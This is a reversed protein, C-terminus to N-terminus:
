ENEDGFFDRKLREDYTCLECIYDFIAEDIIPMLYQNVSEMLIGYQDLKGRFSGSLVFLDKAFKSFFDCEILVEEKELQSMRSYYLEAIERRELVDMDAFMRLDHESFYHALADNKTSM